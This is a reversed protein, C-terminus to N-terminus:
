IFIIFQFSKNSIIYQIRWFIGADYLGISYNKLNNLKLFLYRQQREYYVLKVSCCM